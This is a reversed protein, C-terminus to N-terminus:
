FSNFSIRPLNAIGVATRFKISRM